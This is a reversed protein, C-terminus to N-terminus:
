TATAAPAVPGTSVAPAAPASGDPGRSSLLGHIIGTPADDLVAHSLGPGSFSPNQWTRLARGFDTSAM